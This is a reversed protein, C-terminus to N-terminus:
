ISDRGETLPLQRYLTTVFDFLLVDDCERHEGRYHLPTGYPPLHVFLVFGIGPRFRIASELVYLSEECLFGGADISVLAPIGQSVLRQRITSVSASARTVPPGDAQILAAAPLSGDNDVRQRRRNFALSEISFCGPKGEGLALVAAPRTEAVLAELRTAVTGWVVPLERAVVAGGGVTGALSRAAIWSSNVERGAFPEFGTILLKKM